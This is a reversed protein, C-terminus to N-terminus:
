DATTSWNRSTSKPPCARTAQEYYTPGARSTLAHAFFVRHAYILQLLLNGILRNNIRAILAIRVIAATTATACVPDTALAGATLAYAAGFVGSPWGSMWPIQDLATNVGMSRGASRLSFANRVSCSTAAYSFRTM